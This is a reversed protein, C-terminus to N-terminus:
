DNPIISSFLSTGGQPFIINEIIERDTWRTAKKCWSVADAQNKFMLVQNFRNHTFIFCVGKKPTSRENEIEDVIFARSM